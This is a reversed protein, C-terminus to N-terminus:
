EGTKGVKGGFRALMEGIADVDERASRGAPVVMRNLMASFVLQEGAVTTVYGSLANAWRLTGTKARLNGEAPSAKMRRRLTGDVGAVPLSARFAEAERHKAMFSLLAVTARASTLNNRSLGSGEEFRVDDAELKNARLFERLALVGCDESSRWAPADVARSREGVYDFILDTHLNQSPKMFAAVLEQMQPSLLEGLTVANTGTAPADPWRVSRAKGEVAIGRKELAAKLATAFWQAPRPVTAEDIVPANKLPIEGFVHVVHEGILRRVVIRRSSGAATTTVRNDLVLGTHPQVLTIAAPQGVNAGPVIRLDAYNDEVTLASVEAGYYDNLDDATWGAGTPVGRFFTGDAVIDGAIRKVGAGAITAVFPEFIEDFKKRASGSNWSPDGRGSVVVDGRLTGDAEPKATALIPTVIRYDGGLRDLALAGTYLKSNSAPSLLREPHAEFIVKGTELSVVKVGWLAAKFREHGVHAALQAQLEALSRAGKAVLPAGRELLVGLSRLHQMHSEANTGEFGLVDLQGRSFESTLMLGGRWATAQGDQTRAGGLEKILYDATETTSAYGEPVQASHSIVM